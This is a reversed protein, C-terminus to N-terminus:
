PEITQQFVESKDVSVFIPQLPNNFTMLQIWLVGTQNIKELEQKSLKWCTTVVGEESSHAPLSNYEEQHEAFVVNVEEFKVADM